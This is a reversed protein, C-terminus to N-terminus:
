AGKVAVNMANEIVTMVAGTYPDLLSIAPECGCTMAIGQKDTM